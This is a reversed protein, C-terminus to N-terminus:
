IQDLEKKGPLKAFIPDTLTTSILSTLWVVFYLPLPFAIRSCNKELGNKIIRSAKEASIIFPMPFQNVETMPTKVYGPCIVNVKVGSKALLGRLGEGYIKIAAKSASYAPSSPLGRFAALSSMLAIQGKAQKQMIKIAPNILNFVGDINTAFIEAIQKESETGGSTGASIGANAIVLDLENNQNIEEIWNKVTVKDKIDLIKNFVKAGRDQCLKKVEELREQNRATLFLNIGPRAYELALAKGIGSSAGSVIINM